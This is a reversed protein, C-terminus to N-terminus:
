LSGVCWGERCVAELVPTCKALCDDSCILRYRRVIEDRERAVAKAQSVNVPVGGIALPCEAQVVVCESDHACQQRVVVYKRFEEAARCEREAKVKDEELWEPADVTRYFDCDKPERPPAIWGGVASGTTRMSSQHCATVSVVAALVIAIGRHM